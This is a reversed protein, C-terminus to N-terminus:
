STATLPVVATVEIALSPRRKPPLMVLKLLLLLLLAPASLRIDEEAQKTCSNRLTMTNNSFTQSQSRRRHLLPLNLLALASRRPLSSTGVISDIPNCTTPMPAAAMAMVRAPCQETTLSLM